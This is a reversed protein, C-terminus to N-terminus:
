PTQQRVQDPPSPRSLIFTAVVGLVLVQIVIVRTPAGLLLSIVVIAAISVISSIKANRSIAAHRQWNVILPGFMKHDLLWQHLRESSKAFAFAALLIFPTTPVLPLVVGLGALALSVAGVVLLAIRRVGWSRFLLRSRTPM